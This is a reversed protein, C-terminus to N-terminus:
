RRAASPSTTLLIRGRSDRQVYTKRGMRFDGGSVPISVAEGRYLSLVRRVYERTEPYPPLGGYREVTEPGANYGALALEISGEFRDLLQRLYRTGGDLNQEPDWPDDVALRSATTPMLQMLGIAGKRSEALSDFGSEV